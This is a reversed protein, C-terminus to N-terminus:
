WDVRQEGREALLATFTPLTDNVFSIRRLDVCRLNVRWTQFGDSATLRVVHFGRRAINATAVRHGLVCAVSREGANGGGQWRCEGIMKFFEVYSTLPPPTSYTWLHSSPNVEAPEWKFVCLSMSNGTHDCRHSCLTAHTWTKMWIARSM